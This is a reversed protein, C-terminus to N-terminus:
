RNKLESNAPIVCSMVSPRRPWKSDKDFAGFHVASDNVQQREPDNVANIFARLRFSSNPQSHDGIEAATWGAPSVGFWIL